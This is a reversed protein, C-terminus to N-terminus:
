RVDMTLILIVLDKMYEMCYHTSRQIIVLSELILLMMQRKQRM